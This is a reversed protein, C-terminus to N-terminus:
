CSKYKWDMQDYDEMIGQEDQMDLCRKLESELEETESDQESNEDRPSEDITDPRNDSAVNGHFEFNPLVERFDYSSINVPQIVWPHLKMDRVSARLKPNPHLIWRILQLLPRTVVFPPKLMCQITEDVDYFPNEGFILTYLTVGMSWVELEPGTYPNGLLVEPSCYEITGCFTNFVKGPRMYAASGFDILKIDFSENIIINEDKIDRHLINQSHIYEVASVLQRFMYSALKEDMNPNRDIFEFMDMGSGHKEMVVQFFMENEYAELMMVINPHGLKALLDIELPIRGLDAHNVWCDKLVKAKRVFKVVVEQGDARRKALKVFGFAGKGISMTTQYNESYKGRCAPDEEEEEEEDAPKQRSVPRSDGQENSSNIKAKEALVEGLSIISAGLTSNLSSALTLNAFSRTGEGQEEPDRSVWMCYLSHGSDLEIQRIQFVVGLFSGDKHRGHGCYSGEPILFHSSSSLQRRAGRSSSRSSSRAPTSTFKEPVDESQLREKFDNEVPTQADKGLASSCDRPSTNEITNSSNTNAGTYKVSSSVPSLPIDYDPSKYGPLPSLEIRGDTGEVPSKESKVHSTLSSNLANKKATLSASSEPRVDGRQFEWESATTGLSTVSDDLGVRCSSNDTNLSSENLFNYTNRSGPTTINSSDLCQSSANLLDDTKASDDSKSNSEDQESLSRGTKLGAVGEEKEQLSPLPTEQAIGHHGQLGGPRVTPPTPMTSCSSRSSASALSSNGHSCDLDITLPSPSPLQGTSGNLADQVVQNAESLLAATDPRQQIDEGESFGSTTGSAAPPHQGSSGRSHPKDQSESGKSRASDSTPEDEDDIPPLPMSDTDVMDVDDYFDPILYTIDKDVLEQQTYGFLMLAFYHNCTHITGDPLFTVMGSINAFVWVTGTYVDGQIPSSISQNSAGTSPRPISNLDPPQPPLRDTEKAPDTKRIAISLPFTAGDKTRGTARQKKIEKTLASGSSPLRVAPIYSTLKTGILDNPSNYGHLSAMQQDCLLVTGTSDFTVSATTREVPEMVAICRLEGETVPLKKLWLSVPVVVGSSDVADFVKGAVSVVKGDDELETEMLAEQEKKKLRVLDTLRAGILEDENYAFLECAMENAMLIETSRAKITVIAKNPNRVSTPFTMGVEGGGVYNYFSWSTGLSMSARPDPGPIPVPSFTGKSLGPSFSFEHLGDGKFGDLACKVEPTKDVKYQSKLPKPFSQNGEFSPEEDNSDLGLQAARERKGTRIRDLPSPYSPTGFTGLTNKVNQLPGSSAPNWFKRGSPSMFSRSFPSDLPSRVRHSPLSCNLKVAPVGSGLGEPTRCQDPM